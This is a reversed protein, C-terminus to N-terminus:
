FLGGYQLKSPIRLPLLFLVLGPNSGAESGFDSGFDGGFNRSCNV